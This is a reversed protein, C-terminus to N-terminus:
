PKSRRPRFRRRVRSISHNIFSVSMSPSLGIDFIVSIKCDTEDGCRSHTVTVMMPYMGAKSLSVAHFDSPSVSEARFHGAFASSGLNHNMKIHFSSKPGEFTEFCFKLSM